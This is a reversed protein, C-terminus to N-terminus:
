AGSGPSRPDQPTVLGSLRARLAALDDLRDVDDPSGLGTCDVDLVAAAGFLERAGQDGRLACIKGFLERRLLVPHVPTGSYTARVVAAPSGSAAQVVRAIARPSICPQDGLTVVVAQCDAELRTVATRLSASQGERWESCIIAEANLFDVRALIETASAGLIVLTRDVSPVAAMAAIAHDLLPRGCLEALQKPTAGFRASQGAALIAGAIM